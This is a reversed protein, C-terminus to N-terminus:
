DHSTLPDSDVTKAGHKLVRELIIGEMEMENWIIADAWCLTFDYHSQDIM